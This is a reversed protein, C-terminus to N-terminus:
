VDGRKYIFTVFFLSGIFSLLVFVLATDIFIPNQRYSTFLVILIVILNTVINFGLIQDWILKSNIIYYIIPIIYILLLAMTFIIM